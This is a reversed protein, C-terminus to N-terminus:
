LYTMYAVYVAIGGSPWGGTQDAASAHLQFKPIVPIPQIDTIWTEVPCVISYYNSIDLLHPSKNFLQRLSSVNLFFISLQSNSVNLPNMRRVFERHISAHHRCNLLPNLLRVSSMYITVLSFSLALSYRSSVMLVLIMLCKSSHKVHLAFKALYM